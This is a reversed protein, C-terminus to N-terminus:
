LTRWSISLMNAGAMYFAAQRRQGSQLNGFVEVVHNSVYTARGVTQMVLGRVKLGALVRRVTSRSLGSQVSLDREAPIRHGAHKNRSKLNDLQNVEFAAAGATLSTHFPVRLFFYCLFLVVTGM